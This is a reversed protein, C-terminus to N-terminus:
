PNELATVRAKLAENEKVLDSVKQILWNVATANDRATSSGDTRVYPSKKEAPM